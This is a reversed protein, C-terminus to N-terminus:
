AKSTKLKVDLLITINHDGGDAVGGGAIALLTAVLALLRRWLTALSRWGCAANAAVAKLSASALPQRRQRSYTHYSMLPEMLLCM